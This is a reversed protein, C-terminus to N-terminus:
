TSVEGRLAVREPHDWPLGLTYGHTYSSRCCSREEYLALSGHWEWLTFGEPPAECLQLGRDLYGLANLVQDATLDYGLERLGNLAATPSVLRVENRTPVNAEIWEVLPRSVERPSAWKRGDRRVRSV